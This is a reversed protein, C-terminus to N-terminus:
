QSSVVEEFSQLSLKTESKMRKASPVNMSVVDNKISCVITNIFSDTDMKVKSTFINM